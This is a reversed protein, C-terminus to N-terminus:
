GHSLSLPDPGLVRAALRGMREFTILFAEMDDEPILKNLLCQADHALNPLPMM